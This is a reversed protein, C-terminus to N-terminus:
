IYTRWESGNFFVGAQQNDIQMVFTSSGMINNGNGDITFNHTNFAGYADIFFIADGVSPSAPLTATVASGVADICYRTNAVANFNQYKLTFSPEKGLVSVGNSDKIDGGAPLTLNGSTDLTWNKTNASLVLPGPTGANYDSSEATWPGGSTLPGSFGLSPGGLDNNLFETITVFSGPNGDAYFKWGIISSGRNFLNGFADNGGLFVYRYPAGSGLQGVTIGSIKTGAAGDIGGIVKTDITLTDYTTPLAVWDSTTTSTQTLVKGNNVSSGGGFLDHIASAGNPKNQVDWWYVTSSGVQNGGGTSGDHLRLGNDPDWTLTGAPYARWSDWNNNESANFKKFQSM